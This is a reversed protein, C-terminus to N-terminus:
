TAAAAGTAAASADTGATGAANSGGTISQNLQDEFTQFMKNRSQRGNTSVENYTTSVGTAVNNLGGTVVGVVPLGNLYDNVTGTGAALYGTTLGVAASLGNFLQTCLKGIALTVGGGAKLALEVSKSTQTGFDM